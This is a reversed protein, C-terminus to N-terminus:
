NCWSKDMLCKGLFWKYMLQNKPSYNEPITGDKAMPPPVIRKCDAKNMHENYATLLDLRMEKSLCQQCLGCILDDCNNCLDSNCEKPYVAINKNHSVMRTENENMALTDKFIRQSIGVISLLNYIVQEFLLKNPPFHASSLNPSMNAEMLYVKLDEDVVFDFRMMEFFNSKSKFRNIVEIIKPEKNMIVIRLSDEIQEWIVDPNKGKSRLYANLSEKMGFGLSKYYSKLDPVEWTPLYDDGVVYKDINEPDFPYYEVPCFRLLADGNYIYVRLPNVSTIITYIGIDFKYGSVLLPKDVFEQIFTGNQNLDIDSINRIMINRHNNDKQVFQIKPNTRVYELLKEKHEPLKFAPPIYKLGSTALDVKNTIYGCGPFHNVKQHPKLNNLKSYLSRFPYAHAWLLDWNDSEEFDKKQYGVKELVDFLNHLFGDDNTLTYVGFVKRKESEVIQIKQQSCKIGKTNNFCKRCEDLSIFLIIGIAITAIIVSFVNHKECSAVYNLFECCKKSKNVKPKSNNEFIEKKSAM